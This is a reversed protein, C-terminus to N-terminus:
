RPSPLTPAAPGSAALERELAEALAESKIRVGEPTLHVPDIFLAEQKEMRRDLDVLALGNEAALDRLARNANEMYVPFDPSWAMNIRSYPMTTLVVRTGDDDALSALAQLNARFIALLEAQRRSISSWDDTERRVIEWINAGVPLGREKFYFWKVLAYSNLYRVLLADPRRPPPTPYKFAHSYDTRLDSFGLAKFDNAADHVVLYDPHFYRVNLEYNILTQATTWGAMGFNLVEVPRGPRRQQLLQALAEPYGDETTSGGLCAIRVSGSTKAPSWDPGFFGLRNVGQYAPNKVYLLFPHPVFRPDAAESLDKRRFTMMAERQHALVIFVTAGLEAALYAVILVLMALCFRPRWGAPATRARGRRLMTLFARLFFWGGLATLMLGAV